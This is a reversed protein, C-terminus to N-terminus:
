KVGFVDTLVGLETKLALQQRTLNARVLCPFSNTPPGTLVTGFEIGPLSHLTPL